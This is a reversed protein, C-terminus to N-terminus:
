LAKKPYNLWENNIFHALGEDSAFWISGDIDKALFQIRNSLIFHSKKSFSLYDKLINIM